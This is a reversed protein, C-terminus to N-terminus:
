PHEALLLDIEQRYSDLIKTSYGMHTFRIHGSRDILVSSPMGSIAFAQPAAGKPDFVIPMQHPHVALFADANKRSEDVNVALVELGRAKDRQYMADLAPFSARCPICWSAWFDVLLVKGKYDAPRVVSGDQVHLSVDPTARVTASALAGATLLGGVITTLILLRTM